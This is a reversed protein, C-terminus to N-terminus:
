PTIALLKGAESYLTDESIRCLFVADYSSRV